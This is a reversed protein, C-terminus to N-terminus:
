AYRWAAGDEVVVNFELDDRPRTDLEEACEWLWEDASGYIGGYQVMSEVVSWGIYDFHWGGPKTTAIRSYRAGCRLHGSWLKADVTNRYRVYVHRFGVLRGASEFGGGGGSLFHKDKGFPLEFLYDGTVKHRQDFSSNGEEALLNQWNQAVVTSTGGISGANDISHSYVYTAGLSVGNQLRKRLRLTGANFNSFAVAQEYNFLVDSGYPSTQNAPRPASTIDLHTGKSGNYGANLLIGWVFRRRYM